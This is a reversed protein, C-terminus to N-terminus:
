KSSGEFITDIAGFKHVVFDNQDTFTMFCTPITTNPFEPKHKSYYDVVPKIEDWQGWLVPILHVNEAKNLEKKLLKQEIKQHFFYKISDDNETHKKKIHINVVEIYDEKGTQNNRILFDIKVGSSKNPDLPIETGVLDIPLTKKLTLLVSLEGLFNLYKLDLNTLMGLINNKILKKEKEDLIDTLEEFLLQIYDLLRIASSENKIAQTVINYFSAQIRLPIDRKEQLKQYEEYKKTFAKTVARWDISNNGLLDFLVPFYDRLRKEIALHNTIINQM